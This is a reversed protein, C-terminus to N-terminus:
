NENLLERDSRLIRLITDTGRKEVKTFGNWACEALRGKRLLEFLWRNTFRPDEQPLASRIHLLWKRNYREQAGLSPSLILPLGLGCYFSLESPKTWLIDTKRIIESFVSFYEEKSRSHVIRLNDCRPVYRQKVKEFYEKVERRVGAILNLRVTGKLLEHALSKAIQAGIEKQAGAGGVAYSIRVVGRAEGLIRGKGLLATVQQEYKKRFIESPDLNFLRRALDSKLTGFDEGGLLEKPFPFGTFSIHGEPVGYRKLRQVTRECPVLYHIRSTQPNESVWARSVEADCIICYIKEYRAVDAAIAPTMYSTLLPLPKEGIKKLLGENLGMGIGRKVLRVQMGSKALNRKSELRPIAQLTDFLCFLPKGIVPVSSLRSFYEYLRILRRWLEKEKQGIFASENIAIIGQEAFHRFPFTAREHGLGMSVTAVWALSHKGNKKM